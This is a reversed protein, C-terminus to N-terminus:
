KYDRCKNRPLATYETFYNIDDNKKANGMIKKEGIGISICM